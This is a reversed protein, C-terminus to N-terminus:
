GDKVVQLIYSRDLGPSLESAKLRLRASRGYEPGVFIPWAGDGDVEWLMFSDPQWDRTVHTPDRYRNPSAADPVIIYWTADPKSVRYMEEILFMLDRGGFHELVQKAIIGDASNDAFPLGRMLDRVIDVGPFPQHDIGVTGPTKQPGCGIDLLVAGAEVEIIPAARPPEEKFFTPPKIQIVKCESYQNEDTRVIGCRGCEEQDVGDCKLWDHPTIM